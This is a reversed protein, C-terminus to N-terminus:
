YSMEVIERIKDLTINQKEGLATWGREKFREVIIDATNAYNSANESLRTKMGMMHYFQVTKEIAEHAIEDVSGTQINWVRKGYQALKDKKTEFM